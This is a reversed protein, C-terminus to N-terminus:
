INFGKVFRSAKEKQVKLILKDLEQSIQLTAMSSLGTREVSLLLRKRADEVKELLMENM